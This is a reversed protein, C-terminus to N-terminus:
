KNHNNLIMWQSTEYFASTIRSLQRTISDRTKDPFTSAQGRLPVLEEKNININRIYYYDDTVMGINGEDHHIIFASHNIDKQNIVDRGLTTNAYPMHLMGALTPLVDIQSVTFGYRAPSLLGPAYYLLPVHEDSLRHTSWAKPYLEGTEGEVGHDGVFVFITNDFYAEKRAAEIFKRFCFDTYCFAEYEAQSEFGYKKLLDKEIVPCTFEKEEQPIMFPRHNHATQIVSFFPRTEKKLVENAELFLDKDSIGWVNIEPSRYSGKEYIRISDINNMLGRFNNFQSRGGIFYLKEYGDFSNIITRQNVAEPNQTSFKAMQVDPIGTITAFLGRATGFTPSFCHDFFIGNNCMENFFPTTNLENGSMSSKYMSFSECLVLVVNPRSELSRNNPQYNRYYSYNTRTTEDLQLYDALVKYHKEEPNAAPNNFRFKLTTIFNQFPNLALYSKFNDNLGYADQRTLPHLCLFGYVFWGMLLLAVLYWRRKYEFKHLNSKRNVTSHTRRLLHSIAYVGFGLGLLIWLVPYSEWVMRFMEYPDDKFNLASASIRTHNYSFNGFDAGYFFMMVLTVLALYITWGKKNKNSHFPSFKKYISLLIIPSLAITIWRLDYKLGLWFSPILELLGISKPKFLFATVIRFATFLGLYILFLTVIWQVTKPVKWRIFM